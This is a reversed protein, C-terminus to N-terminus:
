DAASGLRYWRSLTRAWGAAPDLALLRSTAVRRRGSLHPHGEVTGILVPEVSPVLSRRWGSLIPALVLDHHDPANGATLRDFAALAAEMRVAEDIQLHIELARHESM